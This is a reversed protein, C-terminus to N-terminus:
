IISFFWPEMRGEPDAKLATSHAVNIMEAINQENKVRESHMWQEPFNKMNESLPDSCVFLKRALELRANVIQRMLLIDKYRSFKKGLIMSRAADLDKALSICSSPSKTIATLFSTPNNFAVIIDQNLTSKFKEIGGNAKLDSLVDIVSMEKAIRSLAASFGDLAAVEKLLASQYATKAAETELQEKKLDVSAKNLKRYVSLQEDSLGGKEQVYNELNSFEQLLWFYQARAVMTAQRRAACEKASELIIKKRNKVFGGLVSDLNMNKSEDLMPASALGLLEKAKNAGDATEVAKSLMAYENELKQAETQPSLNPPPPLTVVLCRRSLFTESLSLTIDPNDLRIGDPEDLEDDGSIVGDVDDETDDDTDGEDTEDDEMEDHKDQKDEHKISPAQLMGEPEQKSIQVVQGAAESEGRRDDTQSDETDADAKRQNDAFSGFYGKESMAEHPTSDEGGDTGSEPAASDPSLSRGEFDDAPEGLDLAGSDRSAPQKGTGADRESVEASPMVMGDGHEEAGPILKWSDINSGVGPRSPSPVRTRASLVSTALLVALTVVLFTRWKGESKAGPRELWLAANEVDYGTELPARRLVGEDYVQSLGATSTDVYIGDM